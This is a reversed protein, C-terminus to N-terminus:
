HKAAEKAMYTYFFTRGAAALESRNAGAANFISVNARLEESTSLLKWASRKGKKFLASMTDCGTAAHLFLIAERMEGINQQIDCINFVKPDGSGPKLFYVSHSTDCRSVLLALLDTDTGVVVVTEGESAKEM